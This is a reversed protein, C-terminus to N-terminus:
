MYKKWWYQFVLLGWIRAHVDEPNASFLKEKLERISEVNFIGQQEIFEDKLLDNNILSQLENRLWKLLPVEFGQKPRNYLEKPLQHRFADQVIRKKMSGDIKFEAPLSFAFNVV